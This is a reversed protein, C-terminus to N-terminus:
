RHARPSKSHLSLRQDLAEIQAEQTDLRMLTSRKEQEKGEAEPETRGLAQRLRKVLDRAM